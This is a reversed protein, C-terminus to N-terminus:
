TIHVCRVYDDNDSSPTALQRIIPRLGMFKEFFTMYYEIHSDGAYVISYGEASSSASSYYLLRCLLYSDMLLVPNLLTSFYVFNPIHGSLRVDRHIHKLIDESTSTMAFPRHSEPRRIREAVQDYGIEERMIWELENLRAELYNGVISQLPKPLKHFQKSIKHIKKGNSNPLISLGDEIINANQGFLHTIGAKFDKDLLFTHMLKRHTATNPIDMHFNFIWRLLIEKDSELSDPRVLPPEVFVWVNPDKRADSYHFRIGANVKEEAAKKIPTPVIPPPRTTRQPLVTHENEDNKPGYFRDGFHEFLGSFVGIQFGSLRSVSSMMQRVPARIMGRSSKNNKEMRDAEFMQRTADVVSQRLFGSKVVYPFEMFVDLSKGTTRCLKEIGEIFEVLTACTADERCKECQNEESHHVDGMLIVNNTGGGACPMKYAYISVPGSIRVHNENRRKKIQEDLRDLVQEMDMDEISKDNSLSPQRKKFFM